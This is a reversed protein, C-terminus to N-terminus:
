DSQYRSIATLPICPSRATGNGTPCRTSRRTRVIPTVLRIAPKAYCSCMTTMMLLVFRCLRRLLSRWDRGTSSHTFPLVECRIALWAQMPIGGVMDEEEEEVVQDRKPVRKSLGNTTISNFRARCQPCTNAQRKAWEAICFGHYKHSCGPGSLHGM